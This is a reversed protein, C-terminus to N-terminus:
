FVLVTNCRARIRGIIDDLDGFRNLLTEYAWGSGKWRFAVVSDSCEKQGTEVLVFIVPDRPGYTPIIARKPECVARGPDNQLTSKVFAVFRLLEEQSAPIPDRKPLAITGLTFTQVARVQFPESQHQPLRFRDAKGSAVHAAELHRRRVYADVAASGDMHQPLEEVSRPSMTLADMDLEVALGVDPLAVYGRRDVTAGLTSSSTRLFSGDSSDGYWLRHWNVADQLVKVLMETRETLLPTEASCITLAFCLISLRM